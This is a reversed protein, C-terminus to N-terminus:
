WFEIDANQYKFSAPLVGVVEYPEGNLTLAQGVASPAAHFHRQWFRHSLMVVHHKGFEEEAATFPRGVVPNVGLLSFLSSSCSQGVIREPEGHGTLNLSAGGIAAVGEFVTNQKGWEVFAPATINVRDWGQEKFTNFVRVLREPEPYPLPKLLVGNIISFMTTNAGIGLALTLVAVTTFGPNKLLQRFAFRLNNM